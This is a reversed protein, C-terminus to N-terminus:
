FVEIATISSPFSLEPSVLRPSMVVDLSPEVLGASFLDFSSSFCDCCAGSLESVVKYGSAGGRSMLPQFHYRVMMDIKSEVKM